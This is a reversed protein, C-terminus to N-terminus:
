VKNQGATIAMFFVWVIWPVNQGLTIEFPIITESL